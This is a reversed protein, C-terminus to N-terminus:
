ASSSTERQLVVRELVEQVFPEDLLDDSRDLAALLCRDVQDAGVRPRGALRQGRQLHEVRRIATREPIFPYVPVALEDLWPAEAPFRIVGSEFRPQTAYLRTVKDDRAIISIVAAGAARLEQILSTGSGRDEILIHAEPWRQKQALVARKLDPFDFRDRILELLYYNDGQAHWVTGVSYDAIETAKMATDWSIVFMDGSQRQPPTRYNKLWERKILNGEAPIPRQLYQASFDM